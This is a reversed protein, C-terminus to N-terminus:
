WISNCRRPGTWQCARFRTVSNGIITYANLDLSYVPSAYITYSAAGPLASWALLVDAGEHAITLDQIANPWTSARSDM